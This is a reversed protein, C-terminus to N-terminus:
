LEVVLPEFPETREMPYGRQRSVVRTSGLRYDIDHHTHGHVWLSARSKRVLSELDNAFAANLPSGNFRPAISQLSVAHHTVVIAPPPGGRLADALWARSTQHWAVPDGVSILENDSNRIRQYDYIDLLDGSSALESAARRGYLALDTWLTCGLVRCPTDKLWITTEENELFRVRGGTASSIARYRAVLDDQKHHYFEHNGAVFITPVSLYGAVEAAYDIADIGRDIDGALICLDVRGRLPRLDPGVRPHDIAWVAGPIDRKRDIELHLDSMIAVRITM